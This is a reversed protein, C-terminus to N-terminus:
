PNLPPPCWTVTPAAPRAQPSPPGAHLGGFRGGRPRRRGAMGRARRLKPGGPTGIQAPDVADLSALQAEVDEGGGGGGGEGGARRETAEWAGAPLAAEVGGWNYADRYLLCHWWRAPSLTLWGFLDRRALTDLLCRVYGVPPSPPPAHMGRSHTHMHAHIHAHTRTHAHTNTQKHTHTQTHKTHARTHTYTHPRASLFPAVAGGGGSGGEGAGGGNDGAGGAGRRAAGAASMNRKGTCVLVGGFNASVVTAGLRRLDAILALFMRQMLGLLARQLGADHLAGGPNSVWRYLNHLLRDAIPSGNRTADSLWSQPKPNQPPPPDLHSPAPRPREPGPRQLLKSRSRGSQRAARPGRRGGGRRDM